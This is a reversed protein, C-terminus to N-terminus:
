DTDQGSALSTRAWSWDMQLVTNSLLLGYVTDPPVPHVSCLGVIFVYKLSEQSSTMM